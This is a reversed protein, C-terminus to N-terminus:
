DGRLLAGFPNEMWDGYSPARRVPAYGLAPEAFRDQRAYARDLHRTRRTMVPRDGDAYAVM